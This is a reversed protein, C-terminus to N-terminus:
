QNYDVAFIYGGPVPKCRFVARSYESRRAADVATSNLIRSPSSLVRAAQPIGREDLAVAVRVTGSIMQSTRPAVGNTVAPAAYPRACQAPEVPQPDGAAVVPRQVDRADYGNRARTGARFTCTAWPPTYSIGEIPADARITVSSEQGGDSPVLASSEITGTWARDRGYATLTGRFPGALDIARVIVAKPDGDIRTASFTTACATAPDIAPAPTQAFAAACPVVACIAALVLATRSRFPVM